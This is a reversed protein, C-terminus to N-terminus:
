TYQNEYWIINTDNLLLVVPTAHPAPVALGEPACSNVGPKLPILTAQNQTKQTINQLDNNTRKEKKM